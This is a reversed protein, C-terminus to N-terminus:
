SRRRAARPAVGHHEEALRELRKHYPSQLGLFIGGRKGGLFGICSEGVSLVHLTPDSSEIVLRWEGGEPVVIIGRPAGVVRVYIGRGAGGVLDELRPAEVDLHTVRARSWGRVHIYVAADLERCSGNDCLQLRAEVRIKGPGPGTM